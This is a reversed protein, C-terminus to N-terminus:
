RIVTQAEPINYRQKYPTSDRNPYAVLAFGGPRPHLYRSDFFSQADFRERPTVGDILGENLM